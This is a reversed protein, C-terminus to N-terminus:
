KSIVVSQFDLNPLELFFEENSVGFRLLEIMGVCVFHRLVSKSLILDSLDLLSEVEEIGIAGAGDVLLVDGEHIRPIRYVLAPRVSRVPPM